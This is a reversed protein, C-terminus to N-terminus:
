RRFEYVGATGEFCLVGDDSKVDRVPLYVEGDKLVQWNGPKLDTIVFKLTGTGEAKVQFRGSLPEGNKSFTVVRDAVQVGVSRTGDLRKVENLQRCTNDAM